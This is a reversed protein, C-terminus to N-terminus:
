GNKADGKSLQAKLEKALNYGINQHVENINEGLVRAVIETLRNEDIIELVEKIAQTHGQKYALCRKCLYVEGKIIDGCYSSTEDKNIFLFKKCPIKKNM